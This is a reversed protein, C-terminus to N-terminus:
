DGGGSGKLRRAPRISFRGLTSSAIGGFLSSREPISNPARPEHNTVGSNEPSGNPRLRDNTTVVTPLPRRISHVAFPEQTELRMISGAFFANSRMVRPRHTAPSPPPVLLSAPIRLAATTQPKLERRGITTSLPVRRQQMQEAAIVLLKEIAELSAILLEGIDFGGTQHAINQNFPVLIEFFLSSDLACGPYKTRESWVVDAIIAGCM